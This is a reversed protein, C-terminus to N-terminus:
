LDQLALLCMGATASAQTTSRLALAMILDNICEMSLLCVVDAGGLWSLAPRAMHVVCVGRLGRHRVSPSAESCPVAWAQTLPLAPPGSWM